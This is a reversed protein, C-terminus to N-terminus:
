RAVVYCMNKKANSKLKDYNIRKGFILIIIALAISLWLIQQMPNIGAGKNNHMGPVQGSLIGNKLEEKEEDTMNLGGIMELLKDLSPMEFDGSGPFLEDEQQQQDVADQVGQLLDM